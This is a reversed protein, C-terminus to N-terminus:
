ALRGCGNNGFGGYAGFPSPRMYTHPLDFSSPNEHAAWLALFVASAADSHGNADHGAVYKVKGDETVIKDINRFDSVILERLHESIVLKRDMILSRTHELVPTKNTGSWAFGQIRASVNKNAFEAIPNGIGQSDVYGSSWKHNEHLSKLINLQDSYPTKQLVVIDELFYTGDELEDITAIATRDGSGGVDYGCYKARVKANPKDAFVLM